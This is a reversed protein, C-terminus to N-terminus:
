SVKELEVNQPGNIDEWGGRVHWVKTNQYSRDLTIVNEKDDVLSIGYSTGGIEISPSPKAFSVFPFMLASAGGSSIAFFQRRNM